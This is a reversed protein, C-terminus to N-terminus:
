HSSYYESYITLALVTYAELKQGQRGTELVVDDDGDDVDDYNNRLSDHTAEKIGKNIRLKREFCLFLWFGKLGKYWQNAGNLMGRLREQINKRDVTGL